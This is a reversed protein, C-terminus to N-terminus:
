VEAYELTEIQTEGGGRTNNVQASTNDSQQSNESAEENTTTQRGNDTQTETTQQAPQYKTTTRTLVNAGNEAILEVQFDVKEPLECDIGPSGETGQNLSAHWIGRNIEVLTDEIVQALGGITSKVHIKM